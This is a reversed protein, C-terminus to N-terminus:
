PKITPNLKINQQPIIQEKLVQSLIQEVWNTIPQIFNVRSLFYVLIGAVVFTGFLTGLSHFIGSLFNFWAFKLPNANYVMYRDNMNIHDLKQNLRKLELVLKKSSKM